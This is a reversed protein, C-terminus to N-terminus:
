THRIKVALINYMHVIYERHHCLIRNAKLLAILNTDVHGMDLMVQGIDPRSVLGLVHWHGPGPSIELCLMLNKIM